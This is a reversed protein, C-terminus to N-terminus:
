EEWNKGVIIRASATSEDEDLLGSITATDFADLLDSILLTENDFDAAAYIETEAYNSNDANGVEAIQYGLARLTDATRGAAGAVGSGNLVDLYIDGRVDPTPTPEPAELSPTPTPEPAQSSFFDLSFNIGGKEKFYM